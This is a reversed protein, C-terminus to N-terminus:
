LIRNKHKLLEDYEENNWNYTVESHGYGYHLLQGGGITFKLVLLIIILAELNINNFKDESREARTVYSSYERNENVEKGQGGEEQEWETPRKM